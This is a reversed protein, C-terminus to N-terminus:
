SIKPRLQDLDWHKWTWGIVHQQCREPKRFGDSICEISEELIIAPKGSTKFKLQNNRSSLQIKLM